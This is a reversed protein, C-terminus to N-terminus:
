MGGKEPSYTSWYTVWETFKPIIVKTQLLYEAGGFLLLVLIIALFLVLPSLETSSGLAMFFLILVYLSTLGALGGYIMANGIDGSIFSTVYMWYFISFLGGLFVIYAMPRLMDGYGYPHGFMKMFIWLLFTTVLIYGVWILGWMFSSSWLNMEIFNIATDTASALRAKKYEPNVTSPSVITSVVKSIGSEFKSRNAAQSDGEKWPQSIVLSLSCLVSGLLMLMLTFFLSDRDPSNQDGSTKLQHMPTAFLYGIKRWFETRLVGLIVIIIVLYVLFIPVQSPAVFPINIGFLGLSNFM